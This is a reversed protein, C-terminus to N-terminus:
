ALPNVRPTPDGHERVIQAAARYLRRARARDQDAAALAARFLLPRRLNPTLGVGTPEIVLSALMRALSADGRATRIAVTDLMVIRPVAAGEGLVILNSPKHDRNFLGAAGGGALDAISLGAARALAHERPVPARALAAIAALLSVGPVFECVLLETPRGGLTGRLIALPTATRIGARALRAAGRWHRDARSQGVLAKLRDSPSLTRAKVVVDRGALSGRRVWSGDGGGGADLKLPTAVSIWSADSLERALAASDVGPAARIVRLTATADSM